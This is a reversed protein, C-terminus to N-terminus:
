FEVQTDNTLSEELARAVEILGVGRDVHWRCDNRPCRDGVAELAVAVALM